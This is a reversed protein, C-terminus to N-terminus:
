CPPYFCGFLLAYIIGFGFYFRFMIWRLFRNQVRYYEGALIWYIVPNFSIFRFYMNWHIIFITILTQIILLAVCIDTNLTLLTQRPKDVCTNVNRTNTWRRNWYAYVIYLSILLFPLGVAMNVINGIKPEYFKLFGQDWYVRQVYSYPVSLSHTNKARNITLLIYYQFMACPLLLVPIRVLIYRNVPFILLLVFLVGNSRCLGSLSLLITGNFTDNCEIFYLGSLFLLMFLSESYMSTYVISAPNFMFFVCSMRAIKYGYRALTIKYLIASSLVFASCSVLVGATFPELGLMKSICRSVYPLLPFFATEHIKLYGNRMIEFFHTADWALLFKMPSSGPILEVAKDFPPFLTYSIYSIGMYLIRSVIALKVIGNINREFSIGFM